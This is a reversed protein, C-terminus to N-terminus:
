DEDEPFPIYIYNTFDKDIVFLCCFEGPDRYNALFYKSKDEEIIGNNLFDEFFSFYFNWKLDKEKADILLKGIGSAERSIPFIPYDSIKRAKLQYAAEKLIDSVKVFDTTITGLYKGDLEPTNEM